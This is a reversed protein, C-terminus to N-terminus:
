PSPPRARWTAPQRMRGSPRSRPAIVAIMVASSSWEADTGTTAGLAESASWSQGIQLKKECACHATMELGGSQRTQRRTFKRSRGLLRRETAEGRCRDIAPAAPPGAAHQTRPTVSPFCVSSSQANAVPESNARDRMRRRTHARSAITGADATGHAVLGSSASASVRTGGDGAPADSRNLPGVLVASTRGRLPAHVTAHKGSRAYNRLARSHASPSKSLAGGHANVSTSSSTTTAMMPSSTPSNIGATCAERSLARVALQALLMRCTPRAIICNNRCARRGSARSSACRRARDRSRCTRCPRSRCSRGSCQLVDVRNANARAVQRAVQPQEAFARAVREVAVQRFLGRGREVVAAFHDDHRLRDHGELKRLLLVRPRHVGLIGASMSTNLSWTCENLQNVVEFMLFSWTNVAILASIATSRCPPM